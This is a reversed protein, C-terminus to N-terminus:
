TKKFFNPREVVKVQEKPKPPIPASDQLRRGWLGLEERLKIPMHEIRHCIPCLSQINSESNNKRNGDKHHGDMLSRHPAKYGCAECVLKVYKSYPEPRKKGRRYKRRMAKAGETKMWRRKGEMMRNWCVRGKKKFRVKVPGCVSCIGTKAEKDVNTLTHKITLDMGGM